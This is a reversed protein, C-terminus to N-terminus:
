IWGKEIGYLVVELTSKAGTKSNINKRHTKVTEISIFLEEAIEKSSKCEKILKLVELERDSLVVEEIPLTRKQVSVDMFSPEDDLGIFSLTMENDKKLHSIDTHVVLNRLVAGNEDNQITISQQLVRIYEGNKKRVRYSYNSKYKMIKEPSLNMKFDVVAYEFDVFNSLDQPHIINLLFDISFDKPDYGLVDAISESVLEVKTDTPAFTFFYFDGVQFYKLLKSKLELELELKGPDKYRGVAKWKDYIEIYRKKDM